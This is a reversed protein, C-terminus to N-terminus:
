DMLARPYAHSITSCLVDVFNFRIFLFTSRRESELLPCGYLVIANGSVGVWSDSLLTWTVSVPVTYQMMTEHVFLYQLTRERRLRVLVHPLLFSLGNGNEQVLLKHFRTERCIITRRLFKCCVNTGTVHNVLHGVFCIKGSQLNRRHQLHQLWSAFMAARFRDCPFTASLNQRFLNRFCSSNIPPCQTMTTRGM